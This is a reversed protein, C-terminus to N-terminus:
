KNNIIQKLIEREEKAIKLEERVIALEDMVADHTEKLIQEQKDSQIKGTYALVPLAVAQFFIGVWYLLWGQLNKPPDFILTSLTLFAVVWFCAMTSFGVAMANGIWDNFRKIM